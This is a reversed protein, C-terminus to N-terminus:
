PINYYGNKKAEESSRNKRIIIICYSTLRELSPTSPYVTAKFKSVDSQLINVDESFISAKTSESPISSLNKLYAQPVHTSKLTQGM